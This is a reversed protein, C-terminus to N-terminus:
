QNVWTKELEELTFRASGDDYFCDFKTGVFEKYKDPWVSYLVNMIIQGYRLVFSNDNYTKDVLNLFESYTM